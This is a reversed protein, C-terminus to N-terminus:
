YGGSGGWTETGAAFNTTLTLTVTSAGQPEKGGTVCRAATFIVSDATVDSVTYAFYNTPRCNGAGSGPIQDAGTGIGALASTFGTLNNGHEMRYAAATSRLQGIVQKAEAGRSKEIARTYQQIGLTALVGIIIIVVILELLTFAKRM